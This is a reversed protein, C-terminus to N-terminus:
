YRDAHQDEERGDVDTEEEQEDDDDSPARAYRCAPCTHINHMGGGHKKEVHWGAIGVIRSLMEEIRHDGISRQAVGVDATDVFLGIAEGCGRSCEITIKVGAYTVETM